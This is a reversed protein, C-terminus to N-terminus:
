FDIRKDFYFLVWCSWFMFNVKDRVFVVLINFIFFFYCKRFFSLMKKSIFMSVIFFREVLCYNVNDGVKLKGGFGRKYVNGLEGLM